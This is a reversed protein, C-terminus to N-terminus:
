NWKEKFYGELEDPLRIGYLISKGSKEKKGEKMMTTIYLKNDEDRFLELAARCFVGNEYFGYIERRTAYNETIVAKDFVVEKGEKDELLKKLKGVYAPDIDTLDEMKKSKGTMKYSVFNDENDYYAKAEDYLSSKVYVSNKGDLVYDLNGDLGKISYFVSVYLIYSRMTAIKKEKLATLKTSVFSGIYNDKDDKSLLTYDVDGITVENEGKFHAKYLDKEDGRSIFIILLTAFFLYVPIMWWKKLLGPLQKISFRDKEANESDIVSEALSTGSLGEENKNDEELIEKM